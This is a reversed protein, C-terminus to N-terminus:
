TRSVAPPARHRNTWPQNWAIGDSDVRWRRGPPVLPAPILGDPELLVHRGTYARRVDPKCQTEEM